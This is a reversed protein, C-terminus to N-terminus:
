LWISLCVLVSAIVMQDIVSLAAKPDREVLHADVLVSYTTANPKVGKSIMHEFVSSAESTQMLLVIFNFMYSTSANRPKHKHAFRVCASWLYDM